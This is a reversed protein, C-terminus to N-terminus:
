QLPSIVSVRVGCRFNQPFVKIYPSKQYSICGLFGEPVSPGFDLFVSIFRAEPSTVDIAYDLM